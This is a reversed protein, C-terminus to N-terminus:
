IFPAALLKYILVFLPIFNLLHTFFYILFWM